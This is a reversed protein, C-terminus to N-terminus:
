HALLLAPGTSEELFYLTVGGFLFERMRSKGYAGMVLLQGGAKAVARALTEETSGERTVETLDANVGHRSLYRMADTGPFGGPKERVTLVEVSGCSTLLPIAGRLAAAAEDGGDWAVCAKGLPLSLPQDDALALVPTRSVLALEGALGSSRSLVVIDALRAAKALAEVPEAESRVLDFPVDENKLHAEIKAANADDDALAQKLADSAVFSGGMPDMAVYRTVPTDILVTVHGGTTRALSLATELRATMGAGRDAHVLISRM